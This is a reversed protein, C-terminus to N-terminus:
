KKEFFHFASACDFLSAFLAFRTCKPSVRAHAYWAVVCDCVKEIQPNDLVSGALTVVCAVRTQRQQAPGVVEVRTGGQVGAAVATTTTTEKRRRGGRTGTRGEWEVGDM